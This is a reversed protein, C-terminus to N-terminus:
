RNLKHAQRRLEQAVFPMGNEEARDAKRLLRAKREAQFDLIDAEDDSLGPSIFLAKLHRTFLRFLAIM